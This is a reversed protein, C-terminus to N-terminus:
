KLRIAKICGLLLGCIFGLLHGPIYPSFANWCM